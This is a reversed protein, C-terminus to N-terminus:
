YVALMLLPTTRPRVGKASTQWVSSASYALRPAATSLTGRERCGWHWEKGRDRELSKRETVDFIALQFDERETRESRGDM